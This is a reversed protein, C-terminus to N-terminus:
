PFSQILKSVSIMKSQIDIRTHCSRHNKSDNQASDPIIVCSYERYNETPKITYRISRKWISTHNKELLFDEITNLHPLDLPVYNSDKTRRYFKLNIRPQYDNLDDYEM